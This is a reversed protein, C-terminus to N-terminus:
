CRPSAGRKLFKPQSPSATAECCGSKGPPCCADIADAIGRLTTALTDYRVFYHVEKGKKECDLVGAERLQRLHRSVVSLDIPLCCAIEGVTAPRGCVALRALLALRNPDGLAKFLGAPLRQELPESCCAALPPPASSPPPHSPLLKSMQTM